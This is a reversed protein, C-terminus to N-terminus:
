AGAFHDWGAGGLPTRAGSEAVAVCEGRVGTIRGIAHLPCAAANAADVIADWRAPDVALILEYDDGPAARFGREIAGASRESTGAHSALARAAAAQLPDAPWRASEVDAGVGSAAALHALDGAFGDSVDVAATVGGAAALARAARVRSPPAHVAARLAPPPEAGARECALFAAARGPWGTVALVDGARAGARTWARGREVEGLLTISWWAPGSSSALNGGVVCAGEAALASAFAHEVAQMWAADTDRPAGASVLAWRPEAAMAAVDSLNAAALRAGIAAAPTAGAWWHRGEVFADTTVVLDFGARPRLVAADDGPGVIVREGPPLGAVIARIREFEGPM